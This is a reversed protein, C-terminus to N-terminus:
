CATALGSLREGGKSASWSGNGHANLRVTFSWGIQNKFQIVTGSRSSRFLCSYERPRDPLIARGEPSEHTEVDPATVVFVCQRKEAEPQSLLLFAIPAGELTSFLVASL